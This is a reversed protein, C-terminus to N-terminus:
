ALPELPLADDHVDLFFRVDPIMAPEQALRVVVDALAHDEILFTAPPVGLAQAVVLLKRPSASRRGLELNILSDRPWGVRAALAAQTLGAKRRWGAIRQGIVRDLDDAPTRHTM